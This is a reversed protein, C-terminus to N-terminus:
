ALVTYLQKQKKKKLCFVAYSIAVHSSNLRTSKRDQHLHYIGTNLDDHNFIIYGDVDNSKVINLVGIAAGLSDMDPSKHGMIIVNDSEKVLQSLAHSIVRARLRTRTAM